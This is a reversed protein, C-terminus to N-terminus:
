HGKPQKDNCAWKRGGECPRAKDGVSLRPYVGGSCVGDNRPHASAFESRCEESVSLVLEAIGAAPPLQAIEHRGACAGAIIEAQFKSNLTESKAAIVM